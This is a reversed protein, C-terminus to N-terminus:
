VRIECKVVILEIHIIFRFTFRFVIFSRSSFLASFRQSRLDSLTKWIACFCSFFWNILRDEAFILFKQEEFSEMIFLFLCAGSQSFVNVLCM